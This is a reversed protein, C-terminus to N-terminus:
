GESTRFVRDGIPALPSEFETTVDRDPFVGVFRVPQDGVARIGHPEEAPIVAISGAALEATEDGDTVAATGDLLLFLEEASETHTGVAGDAELETYVVTLADAEIGTTAPFGPTFPFNVAARMATDEQWLEVLELDDLRVHKM